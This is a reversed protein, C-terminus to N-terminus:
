KCVRPPRAGSKFKKPSPQFGPPVVAARLEVRNPNQERGYLVSRQRLVAVLAEDFSM